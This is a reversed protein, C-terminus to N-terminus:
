IKIFSATNITQTNSNAGAPELTEQAESDSLSLSTVTGVGEMVKARLAASAAAPISVKGAYYIEDFCALDDGTVDAAFEVEGSIILTYREGLEAASRLQERSISEKGIIRWLSGYYLIVGGKATGIKKWTEIAAEPIYAQGGVYVCALRGFAAVANKAVTLEGTIYLKGGLLRSGLETFTLDGEIYQFGDPVIERSDTLFHEGYKKNDSENIIISGCRVSINKAALAAVAASNLANVFDLTWIVANEARVAVFHETLETSRVLVEAGDPYAFIRGDIRVGSPFRFSAPCLITNAHLGTIGRLAAPDATTIHIFNGVLYKGSYDNSGDLLTDGVDIPEGQVDIVNFGASNVTFGHKSLERYAAASILAGATNLSIKEFAGFFDADYRLIVAKASHIALNAM